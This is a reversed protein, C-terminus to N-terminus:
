TGIIRMEGREARSVTLNVVGPVFGAPAADLIGESMIDVRDLPKEARGGADEAVGCMLGEFSDADLVSDANGGTVALHQGAIGM